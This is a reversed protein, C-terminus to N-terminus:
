IQIGRYLRRLGNKRIVEKAVEYFKLRKGEHAQMRTKIADAPFCFTWVIIGATGGSIFKKFASNINLHNAHDSMDKPVGLLTKFYGFLCFYLAFGPADRFFMGSYGRTFGYLGETTYIRRLETRYSM